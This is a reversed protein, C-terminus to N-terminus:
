TFFVCSHPGRISNERFDNVSSLKTGEYQRIEVHKLEETGDMDSVGCGNAATLILSLVACLAVVGTVLRRM